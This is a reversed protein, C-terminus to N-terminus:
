KKVKRKRPHKKIPLVPPDGADIKIEPAPKSQQEPLPREVYEVDGPKVLDKFQTYYGNFAPNDSAIRVLDREMAPRRQNNALGM